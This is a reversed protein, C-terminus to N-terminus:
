DSDGGAVSQLPQWRPYGDYFPDDTLQRRNQGDAEILYLDYQGSSDQSHFVIQAGSPSWDLEGETAPADTLRTLSTGDPRIKYLDLEIGSRNSAFAIWQGDPSWRAYRDLSDHRTLRSEIGSSIDITYIESNGDRDSRFVLQKGDPSWSAQFNAGPGDTLQRLHNGNADVLFLQLTDQVAQHFVLREGNPSYRFIEGPAIEPLLSDWDPGDHTLFRITQDDATHGICVIQNGPAREPHFHWLTDSTIPVPATADSFIAYLNFAGNERRSHFIIPISADGHFVPAEPQSSRNAPLCGVLTCALLGGLMLLGMRAYM